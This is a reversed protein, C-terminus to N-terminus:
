RNQKLHTKSLTEFLLQFLFTNLFLSDSKLIYIFTFQFLYFILISIIIKMADFLCVGTLIILLLNYKEQCKRRIYDVVTYKKVNFRNIDRRSELYEGNKPFIWALTAMENKLNIKINQMCEIIQM